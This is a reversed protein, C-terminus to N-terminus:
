TNARPYRRFNWPSQATTAPRPLMQGVDFDSHAMQAVFKRVKSKFKEWMEESAPEAIVGGAWRRELTSNRDDERSLCHFLESIDANSLKTFDSFNRPSSIFTTCLGATLLSYLALLYLLM